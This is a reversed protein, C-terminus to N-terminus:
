SAGPAPTNTGRQGGIPGSRNAGSPAEEHTRAAVAVQPLTGIAESEDGEPEDRDAIALLFRYAAGLAAEREADTACPPHAAAPLEM